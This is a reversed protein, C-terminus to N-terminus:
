KNCGCACGKLPTRKGWACPHPTARKVISVFGPATWVNDYWDGTM